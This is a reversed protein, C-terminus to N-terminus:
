AEGYELSRVVSWAYDLQEMLELNASKLFAIEELADEYKEQLEEIQMLNDM